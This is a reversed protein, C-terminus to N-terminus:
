KEDESEEATELQDEEAEPEDEEWEDLDLEDLDTNGKVRQKPKVVKFYVLAGGGLLTLILLILLSGSVSSDKKPKEPEPEPKKEPETVQPTPEPQSTKKQISQTDEDIISLLDAEDVQNLFHVSNDGNVAHDIVIYFYKGGRSQVVIFEKDKAKDEKIDDVLNMNGEPTLPQPETTETKVGSDDTPAEENGHAYAPISFGSMLLLSILLAPVASYFRKHKMM